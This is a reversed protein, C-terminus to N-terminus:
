LVIDDNFIDVTIKKRFHEGHSGNFYLKLGFMLCITFMLLFFLAIALIPSKNYCVRLQSLKGYTPVGCSLDSTTSDLINWGDLSSLKLCCLSSSTNKITM